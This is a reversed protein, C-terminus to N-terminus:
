DMILKRLIRFVLSLRFLEKEDCGISNELEPITCLALRPSLFTAGFIKFRGWWSKSEIMTSVGNQKLKESSKSSWFATTGFTERFNPLWSISLSKPFEILFM